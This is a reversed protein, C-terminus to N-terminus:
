IIDSPTDVLIFSFFAIFCFEIAAKRHRAAKNEEIVFKVRVARVYM